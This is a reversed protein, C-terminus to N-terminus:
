QEGSQASQRAEGKRDPDSGGKERPRQRPGAGVSPAAGVSLVFLLAVLSIGYTM